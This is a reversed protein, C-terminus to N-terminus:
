CDLVSAVFGYRYQLVVCCQFSQMFFSHAEFGICLVWEFQKCHSTSIHRFITGSVTEFEVNLAHVRQFSWTLLSKTRFVYVCRMLSVFNKYTGVGFETMRHAAQLTVLSKSASRYIMHFLGAHFLRQRFHREFGCLRARNSIRRETQATSRSERFRLVDFPVNCWRRADLLFSWLQFNPSNHFDVHEFHSVESQM